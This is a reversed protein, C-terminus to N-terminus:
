NDLNLFDRDGSRVDAIAEQTREHAMCEECFEPVKLFPRAKPLSTAGTLTGHTECSVVYRGDVDVNQAKADYIVVWGGNVDNHRSAIYGIRDNYPKRNSM